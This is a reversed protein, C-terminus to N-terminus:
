LKAELSYAGKLKMAAIVMQLSKPVVEPCFEVHIREDCILEKMFCLLTKFPSDTLPQSMKGVLHLCQRLLEVCIIRNFEVALRCHMYLIYNGSPFFFLFNLLDFSKGEKTFDVLPVGHILIEARLIQEKCKCKNTNDPKNNKESYLLLMYVLYPLLLHCGVGTNKSPYGM